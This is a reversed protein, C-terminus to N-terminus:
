RTRCSTRRRRISFFARSGPMLASLTLSYLRPTSACNTMGLAERGLSDFRQRGGVLRRPGNSAALPAAQRLYSRLMRREWHGWEFGETETFKPSQIATRARGCWYPALLTQELGQLAGGVARFAPAPPGCIRAFKNFHPRAANHRQPWSLRSRAMKPCWREKM